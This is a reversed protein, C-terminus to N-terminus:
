GLSLASWAVAEGNTISLDFGLEEIHNRIMSTCESYNHIELGMDEYYKMYSAPIETNQGESDGIFFINRITYGPYADFAGNHPLTLYDTFNLRKVLYDSEILDEPFIYGSAGSYIPYDDPRLDDSIDSYSIYPEYPIYYDTMSCLFFKEGDASLIYYTNDYAAAGMSGGVIVLGSDYVNVCTRYYSEETDFIVVEGNEVQLFFYEGVDELGMTDDVPEYDVALVLEEIGDMGCDIFGYLASLANYKDEFGGCRDAYAAILENVDYSSDDTGYKFRCKVESNLFANLLNKAESNSIVEKEDNETKDNEENNNQEESVSSENSEATDEKSVSVESVPISTIVQTESSVSIESSGCGGLTVALLLAVVSANLLKKM